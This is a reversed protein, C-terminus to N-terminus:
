FSERETDLIAAQISHELKRRLRDDPLRALRNAVFLGFQVADFPLQNFATTLNAAPIISEIANMETADNQDNLTSQAAFFQNTSSTVNVDEPQTSTRYLVETAAQSEDQQMQRDFSTRATTNIQMTMSPGAVPENKPLVVFQFHFFFLFLSSM